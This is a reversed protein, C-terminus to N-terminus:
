IMAAIPSALRTTMVAPSLRRSSSMRRRAPMVGCSAAFATSASVAISEREPNEGEEGIRGGDRYRLDHVAIDEEIGEREPHEGDRPYARPDESQEPSKRVERRERLDGGFAVFRPNVARYACILVANPCFASKAREVSFSRVPM